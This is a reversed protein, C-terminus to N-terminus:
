RFFFHPEVRRLSSALQASISCVVLGDGIEKKLLSPIRHKDVFAAM